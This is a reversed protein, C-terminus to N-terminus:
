RRRGIETAPRRIQHLNYIGVGKIAWFTQSFGLIESHCPHEHIRLAIRCLTAPRDEKFSEENLVLERLM